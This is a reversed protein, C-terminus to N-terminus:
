KINKLIFDAAEKTCNIIKGLVVKNKGNDSLKKIMNQIEENTEDMYPRYQIVEKYVPRDNVVKVHQIVRSIGKFNQTNNVPTIQM